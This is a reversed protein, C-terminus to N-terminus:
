DTADEDETYDLSRALLELLILRGHEAIEIQEHAFHVKERFYDDEGDALLDEIRKKLVAISYEREKIMTHAVKREPSTMAREMKQGKM